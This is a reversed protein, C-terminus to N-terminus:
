TDDDGFGATSLSFLAGDSNLDRIDTFMALSGGEQYAIALSELSYLVAQSLRLLKTPLGELQTKM